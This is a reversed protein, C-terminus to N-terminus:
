VAQRHQLLYAAMGPLIPLWFTLLRLTPVAAVAPASAVGIGGLGAVLVAEVAGLGGPTPAAAAIASGGVYVAADDERLRRAAARRRVGALRRDVYAVADLREAAPDYMM